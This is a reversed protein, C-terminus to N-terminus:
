TMGILIYNKKGTIGVYAWYIPVAYNLGTVFVRNLNLGKTWFNMRFWIEAGVAGTLTQM